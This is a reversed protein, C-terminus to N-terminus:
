RPEVLVDEMVLLDLGTRHFTSLADDPTCVVPEDRANFSTNLLMPCGTRRHFARLLGYFEPNSEDVTQLRATGDVHTVAPVPGLPISARRAIDPDCDVALPLDEGVEIPFVFSMYPSARGDVFWDRVHEALVAPAFPRFGAREKVMSNIRGKVEASRPDALISRHGLARPGFEMRGQLWGIVAGDVLREVVQGVLEAPGLRRHPVGISSLYEVIEDSGFAPGLFAGSMGDSAGVVRAQGRSHCAWLAAGLASGSDGPAPQVWVDDFVGSRLLHGTAVCNLSVGGALCLAREGTRERLDVAMRSLIVDLVSQISAALDAERQTPSSGHPRPPGGFTQEFRRSVMRRGRTFAFFRQDMSFTGDDAVQVLDELIRDVFRPEGYPALGMLEGEGGDPRFGCYETFTSYLLGLSNPYRIEVEVDLHRGHGSGRTATAWEGVGDLTLVAAADFPSPFFAAASHSVHHDVYEVAPVTSRRDMFWRSIRGPVGLQGRVVRPMEVLLSRPSRPGVELRTAVYRDLVAIPREHHVVLDVERPDRGAVALCVDIAEAPFSPDHKVRSLREQEVAAIVVGDEVLAASSDHFGAAIGLVLM